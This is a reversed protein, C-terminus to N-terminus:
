PATAEPAASARAHAALFREADEIPIAFGIAHEEDFRSEAIGIVDGTHADFVPGGSEGPIVPIDLELADHRISSLRGEFVSTAIGLGEDQFADPIPYGAVGIQIGADLSHSTGLHVRPLDREDAEVIALDDQTDSAVVRAALTRRNSITVRLRRAGDIVHEATLFRSGWAGSEVVFGTGYADDYVNKKKPDDSPALMTFLVVSPRLTKFIKPFVDESTQAQTKAAGNSCAALAILLVPAVAKM